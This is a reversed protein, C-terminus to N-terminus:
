RKSKTLDVSQSVNDDVLAAGLPELAAEEVEEAVCGLRVLFVKGFLEFLNRRIM